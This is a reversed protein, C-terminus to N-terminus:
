LEETHGLKSSPVLKELIVRDDKCVKHQSGKVDIVAYIKDPHPPLTVGRDPHHVYICEEGSEDPPTVEPPNQLKRERRLRKRELPVKWMNVM